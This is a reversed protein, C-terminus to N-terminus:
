KKYIRGSLVLLGKAQIRLAEDQSLAILTNAIQGYGWLVPMVLAHPHYAFDDPLSEVSLRLDSALNVDVVERQTGDTMSVQSQFLKDHGAISGTSAQYNLDITAVGLATLTHLEGVDSVGDQNTDRWVKLQDYATDRADIVGDQNSDLAALQAFGHAYGAQDGFLETGDDIQGNGNTDIVLLGDDKDVWGTREAFGDVNMDFFATSDAVSVLEIGDGDLDLILPDIRPPNAFPSATPLDTTLTTGDENPTHNSCPNTNSTSDNDSKPLRNTSFGTHSDPIQGKYLSELVKRDTEGWVTLAYEENKDPLIGIGHGYTIVKYQGDEVVLKRVVVGPKLAHLNTTVNIVTNKDTRHSIVFGPGAFAVGLQGLYATGTSLLFSLSTPLHRALTTYIEVPNIPISGFPTPYDNFAIQVQALTFDEETIGLDTKIGYQHYNNSAIDIDKIDDGYWSNDLKDNTLTISGYVTNFTSTGDGNDIWRCM